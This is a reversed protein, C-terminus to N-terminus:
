RKRGATRRQSRNRRSAKGKSDVEQEIEAKRQVILMIMRPTGGAEVFRDWEDDGMWFAAIDEIKNEEGVDNLGGSRNSVRQPLGSRALEGLIKSYGFRLNLLCPVAADAEECTAQWLEVVLLENRVHEILALM